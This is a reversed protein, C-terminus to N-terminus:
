EPRWRTTNRKQARRTAANASARDWAAVIRRAHDESPIGVVDLLTRQAPLGDISEVSRKTDQRGPAESRKRVLDKIEDFQSRPPWPLGNTERWERWEEPTFDLKDLNCSRCAPALNDRGSSGGKSAPIVHDVHTPAPDGCYACPGSELVERRLRAPIPIRESPVTM